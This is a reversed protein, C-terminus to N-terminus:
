KRTRKLLSVLEALRVLCPGDLIPAPSIGLVAVPSPEALDTWERRVAFTGHSTGQLILM